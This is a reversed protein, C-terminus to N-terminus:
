GASFTWDAMKPVSGTCTTGCGCCALEGGAATTLRASQTCCGVDDENHYHVDLLASQPCEEGTGLHISLLPAFTSTATVATGTNTCVANTSTRSRIRSTDQAAALSLSSALSVLLNYFRMM